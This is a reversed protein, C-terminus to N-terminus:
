GLLIDNDEVTKELDAIMYKWVNQSKLLGCLKIDLSFYYPNVRKESLLKEIEEHEASGTWSVSYVVRFVGLGSVTCIATLLRNIRNRSLVITKGVFEKRGKIVIGREYDRATYEDYFFDGLVILARNGIYLDIDEIGRTLLEKELEEFFYTSNFTSSDVANKNNNEDVREAM